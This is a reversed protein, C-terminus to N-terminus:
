KYRVCERCDAMNHSRIDNNFRKRGEASLENFDLRYALRDGGFYVCATGHLSIVVTYSTTIASGGIGGYGLVTSGWTQPFMFVEVDEDRPRRSKKIEPSTNNKIAEIQEQKSLARWKTWDRDYYEIDPLDRYIAASLARHLSSIPNPM